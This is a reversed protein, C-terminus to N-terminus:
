MRYATRTKAFKSFEIRELRAGTEHSVAAGDSPSSIIKRPELLTIKSTFVASRTQTLFSCTLWCFERELSNNTQLRSEGPNKRVKTM